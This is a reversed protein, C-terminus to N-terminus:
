KKKSVSEAHLRALTLLLTSNSIALGPWLRQAAQRMLKLDDPALRVNVQLSRKPSEM